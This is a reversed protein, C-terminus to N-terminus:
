HSDQEDPVEAVIGIDDTMHVTYFDAYKCYLQRWSVADKSTIARVLIETVEGYNIQEKM